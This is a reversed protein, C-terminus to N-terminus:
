TPPLEPTGGPTTFHCDKLKATLAKQNDFSEIASGMMQDLSQDPAIRPHALELVETESMGGYRRNDAVTGAVAVPLFMAFLTSNFLM